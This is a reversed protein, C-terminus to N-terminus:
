IHKGNCKQAFSVANHSSVRLATHLRRRKLDQPGIPNARWPKEVKVKGDKTVGVSTVVEVYVSGLKM